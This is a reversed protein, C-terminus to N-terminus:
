VKENIAARMRAIQADCSLLVSQRAALDRRLRYDHGWPAVESILRCAKEVSAERDFPVAAAQIAALRFHPDITM